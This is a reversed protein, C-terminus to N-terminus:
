AWARARARPSKRARYGTPSRTAKEHGRGGRSRNSASHVTALRQGVFVRGVQLWRMFTQRDGDDVVFVCPRCVPRCM